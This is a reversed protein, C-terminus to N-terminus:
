QPVGFFKAPGYVPGTGDPDQTSGVAKVHGDCFLMNLVGNHRFHPEAVLPNRPDPMRGDWVCTTSSPYPIQSDSIPPYFNMDAASIGGFVWYPPPAGVQARNVDYSATVTASYIMSGQKDSPCLVVQRNKMYPFISDMLTVPQPALQVITMPWMEDYDTTYQMLALGFQKLNSMCSAQRAKERARAFVPFLIAALIAIIAIVVLLEILTFGGHRPAQRM